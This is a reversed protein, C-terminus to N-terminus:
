REPEYRCDADSWRWRGNKAVTALPALNEYAFLVDRLLVRSSVAADDRSWSLRLGSDHADLPTERRVFRPFRNPDRLAQTLAVTATASVEPLTPGLWDAIDDPGFDIRKGDRTGRYRGDLREDICVWSWDSGNDNGFGLRVLTGPALQQRRWLPPAPSM